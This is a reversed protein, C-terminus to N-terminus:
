NPRANASTALENCIVFKKSPSDMAAVQSTEVSRVYINMTLGVNIHRLIAKIDKEQVGLLHLTTALGRRFAHWGHWFLISKDREFLHRPNHEDQCKKCSVCHALNPVM